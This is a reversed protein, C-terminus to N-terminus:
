IHSVSSFHLLWLARYVCMTLCARFSFIPAISSSCPVVQLHTAQPCKKLSTINLPFLSLKWTFPIGLDYTGLNSLAPSIWLSLFSFFHSLIDLPQYLPHRFACHCLIVLLLWLSGVTHETLPHSERNFAMPPWQWSNLGQFLKCFSM